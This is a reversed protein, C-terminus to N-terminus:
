QARQFGINDDIVARPAVPLKEPQELDLTVFELGGTWVTRLVDKFFEVTFQEGGCRRYGFGFPAYGATDCLPYATGDVVSYVAGFASNTLQAPRGDKVAFPTPPYPCRALGAKRCRAEDNDVSTPVTKYRDPDFAEPIRWHRPDQSTAPHPTLVTGSRPDLGRMADMTSLSGGNPSITRFLEMVFRDLPTFPGGDPDDPGDTMTRTFWSRVSPDGHDAQLMAMTQYLMNGWQSFALFNHFCEFVIDMRRFNDGQGGNTLWYHVFTAEPDSVEGDIVAQVRRDIWEKLYPRLEYDAYYEHM